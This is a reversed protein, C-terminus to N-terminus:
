NTEKYNTGNSIIDDILHGHWVKGADFELDRIAKSDEIKKVYTNGSFIGLFVFQKEPHFM